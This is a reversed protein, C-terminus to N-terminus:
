QYFLFIYIFNVYCTVDYIASCRSLTSILCVDEAFRTVGQGGGGGGGGDEAGGEGDAVNGAGDHDHDPGGTNTNTSTRVLQLAIQLLEEDKKLVALHLLTPADLHAPIDSAMQYLNASHPKAELVQALVLNLTVPARLALRLLEPMDAFAPAAGFMGIDLVVVQCGDGLGVAVKPAHRRVYSDLNLALNHVNEPNAPPGAAAGHGSGADTPTADQGQSANGLIALGTISNNFNLPSWWAPKLGSTGHQYCIMRGDALGLLFYHKGIACADIQGNLPLNLVVPLDGCGGAGKGVRREQERVAPGVARGGGRRRKGSSPRAKRPTLSHVACHGVQLGVVLLYDSLMCCVAAGSRPHWVPPLPDLALEGSVTNKDTGKKSATIISLLDDGGGGGAAAGGGGGAGMVGSTDKTRTRHKKKDRQSSGATSSRIVECTWFYGNATGVCAVTGHYNLSCCSIGGLRSARTAYNTRGSGGEEDVEEGADGGGVASAGAGAGAETGAAAPKIGEGQDKGQDNLGQGQGQDGFGFGENKTQARAEDQLKTVDHNTVHVRYKAETGSLLDCVRVQLVTYDDDTPRDTPQHSLQNSFKFRNRPSTFSARRYSQVFRVWGNGHAFLLTEGDGSMCSAVVNNRKDGRLHRGHGGSM